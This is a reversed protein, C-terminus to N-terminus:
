LDWRMVPRYLETIPWISDLVKQNKEPNDFESGMADKM